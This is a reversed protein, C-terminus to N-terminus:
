ALYTRIIMEFLRCTQTFLYCFTKNLPKNLGSYRESDFAVQADEESFCEAGRPNVLCSSGSAPLAARASALM